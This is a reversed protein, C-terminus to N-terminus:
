RQSALKFEEKWQAEVAKFRAQLVARDMADAAGSQPALALGAKLRDLGGKTDGLAIRSEAEARVARLPQGLSQALQSLQSWMVADNPHESVWSQVVQATQQQAQRDLMLALRSRLWLNTRSSQDLTQLVASAKVAQGQELWMEAVIQDLATRAVPEHTTLQYARAMAQQARSMDKLKAAAMLTAVTQVLQEDRSAQANASGRQWRQLASASTDMLVLARARMVAYEADERPKSLAGAQGSPLRARAEAIRESTLPHTRLWPYRQDDNLRSAKELKEFMTSMSQANFGAQTLVGFGVRDAEREMDRSFNLQGQAAAAQGGVILAQGVSPNQSAALVGLVMTALGVMSQRKGNGMKRAIHRQTVHSMEHALVAALEDRSETIGILGLHVGVYGGPLAFANITSNQVLFVQWAGHTSQDSAIEGQQLATSILRQWQASVYTQLIPDDLYQPDQRLQRMVEDGLQREQPATLGESAAEGLFPRASATAGSGSAPPADDAWSSRPLASMLLSVSLGLALGQRWRAPM